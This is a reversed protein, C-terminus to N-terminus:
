IRNIVYSETANHREKIVAPNGFVVSHGPIDHNIFSNSAIMVDSGVHIKGVITSNIGVSINDGLIPSGRREGRNEAGLTVGKHLNINKGM